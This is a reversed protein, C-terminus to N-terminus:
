PTFPNGPSDDFNYPFLPDPFPGNTTRVHWDAQIFGEPGNILDQTFGNQTFSNSSNVGAGNNIQFLQVLRAFPNVFGANGFLINDKLGDAGGTILGGVVAGNPSTDGRLPVYNPFRGFNVMPSQVNITNGVNGTLNLDMQATHDLEVQDLAPAARAVTLTPDPQFAVGTFPNYQVFSEFHLDNGVNGTITNNQIDAALYADTGVRIFVGDSGIGPAANGTVIDGQRGNFQITNNYINLRANNVTSLDMWNSLFISDIIDTNEGSNFNLADFNRPDFPFPPNTPQPDNFLFFIRPQQDGANQESRIGYLGNSSITNGVINFTSLQGPFFHPSRFDGMQGELLINIGNRGNNTIISNTITANLFGPIDGGGNGTRGNITLDNGVLNIGNLVNNQVTSNSVFLNGIGSGNFARIETSAGDVITLVSQTQFNIGNGGNGDAALPGGVTVHDVTLTVDGEVATQSLIGDQNNGQIVTTFTPATPNTDGTILIDHNGGLYQMLIGSLGTANTGFGNHNITTDGTNASIRMFTVSPADFPLHANNSAQDAPSIDSTLFIGNSGNNNVQINDLVSRENGLEYGFEAGPALKIRIGNQANNNFTTANADLVLESDGFLDLRIGQGVGTAFSGNFNLTDNQLIIRNPTNAMQQNPDQPDSGLGHFALGDVGNNSMSTRIISSRVLSAGNRNYVLGSLTNQEILTDFINVHMYSSNNSTLVIGNLTNQNFSSTAGTASPSSILLNLISGDNTTASLGNGNALNATVNNLDINAVSTGATSFTINDGGTTVSNKASGLGNGNFNENNTVFNLIAAGDTAIVLGNGANGTITNGSSLVTLGGVATGDATLALGNNFNATITNNQVIANLTSSDHRSIELGGGTFINQGNGNVGVGNNQVVNNTVVVHAANATGATEVHIGYGGYGKVTNSDIIATNLTSAGSAIVHIGDSGSGFGPTQSGFKEGTAEVAVNSTAPDFALKASATLGNSFTVTVTSGATAASTLASSGGNQQFTSTAQFVGTPGFNNFGLQMQQAFPVNFPAAVNLFNAITNPTNLVLLPNTGTNIATGDVTTLGVATDTNNVPQVVPGRVLGGGFVIFPEQITAPTGTLDWFINTINVGADSLNTITFPDTGSTGNFTFTFEDHPPAITASVGNTISNNLIEYSLVGTGGVALNIASTQNFSFTNGPNTTTGDTNTVTRGGILMTTNGSDSILGIGYRLNGSTSTGAVGFLNNQVVFNGVSNNTTDVHLGDLINASFTNNFIGFIPPTSTTTATTPAPTLFNLTGGNATLDLGNAGNGDFTNSRTVAATTTTAPTDPGGIIGGITSGANASLRLGDGGNNKFTNAQVLVDLNPVFPPSGTNTVQIGSGLNDHVNNSFFMAQTGAAFTGSLNTLSVGNLGGHINNNNINVGVNNNGVIGNGTASGIIEFGSVEIGRTNGPALTIVDGGTSNFLMPATAGAVAPITMVVGPFNDTTFTHAISTSLLRQGNFLELTTSTDLNTTTADVRPQVLIIDFRERQALTVAEYNAISNFPHEASGNGNVTLNPNINAVFYAQHTAPNIATDFSSFAETRAIVRNQRFVNQNLRDQVRMNRLWRGPKGNPLTVFVQFQTNLGFVHDDTVQVGFSVDENIQAQLRGSVGTTTGGRVGMGMFHYGGVYANLGYRGLIPTPGGMEADFGSYAQEVVNNRLLGIGNGVLSATQTLNSALVHDPHSVPVYGNGRFDLYRGLSEFSLGLQQYPQAHGNDFDYWASLGFIRDLDENWYRWGAGLSAGGRGDYTVMGQASGFLIAADELKYPVYVGINSYGANYGYLGGGRSDIIYRPAMIQDVRSMQYYNGFAGQGPMVAGVGDGVQAPLSTVPPSQAGAQASQVATPPVQSGLQVTGASEGDQARAIGFMTASAVLGLLCRKVSLNM